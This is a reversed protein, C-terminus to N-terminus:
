EGELEYELGSGGIAMLTDRLVFYAFPSFTASTDDIGAMSFSKYYMVCRADHTAGVGAAHAVGKLMMKVARQQYVEETPEGYRLARVNILAWVGPRSLFAPGQPDNVVFVTICANTGIAQQYAEWRAVLDAADLRELDAMRTNLRVQAQVAAQAQTFVGGSLAGGVNVLLVHPKADTGAAALLRVATASAGAEEKVFTNEQVATRNIQVAALLGVLVVGIGGLWLAKSM